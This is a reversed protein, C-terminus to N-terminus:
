EFINKSNEMKAILTSYFSKFGADQAKDKGKNAMKIADTKKNIVYYGMAMGLISYDNGPEKDFNAKWIKYARESEGTKALGYGYNFLETIKGMPLAKNMISDAERKRNLKELLGAYTSLTTFNAEGFFTNISRDAWGLAEELNINNVLCYNAAMNMNQWYRYFEGSNFERRFAELQTKQLDVSIKFPIKVKEWLLSLVASNTAQSDFQYTLREISENLHIVPVEVRLADDDPNYYFSGWATNFKSFIITAKEPGMAIFFGYKGKVLAKDEVLVDTSFEITTNENAGARWPAAKSTGYHLDKFGYHVLDGWIKGERGSVSPRSYNVTVKTIGINESVSAKKNNDAPFTTQAEMRQTFLNLAIFLIFLFKYFANKRCLRSNKYTKIM